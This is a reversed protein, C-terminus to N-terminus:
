DTLMIPEKRFLVPALLKVFILASLTVLFIGLSRSEEELDGMPM